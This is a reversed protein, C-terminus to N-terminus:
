PLRTVSSYLVGSIDFNYRTWTGVAYAGNSALAPYEASDGDENSLKVPLSSWDISWPESSSLVGTRAYIDGYAYLELVSGDDLLTVTAESGKDNYRPSAGFTITGGSVTGRRYHLYDEGTVQHVEVLQNLNNIAIHPNIGDDYKIGNGGSDWEITYDGGNPDKLHGVRYYLGKGGSGSEHVGVITGNDNISISSHFGSDFLTSEQLWQINQDTAGYPDIKGVAYWLRSDSKYAGSSYIFIVYGERSVAVNPWYGLFPLLKSEGWILRTGNLQGLTYYLSRGAITHTQHAELVIGSVHAALSTEVGQDYKESPTWRLTQSSGRTTCLAVFCVVLILHTSLIKKICSQTRPTVISNTRLVARM